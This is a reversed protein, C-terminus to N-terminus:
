DFKEIINLVEKPTRAIFDPKYEALRKRNHYGWTVAIIKLGIKRSALIDNVTDGIFLVENKRLNFKKLFNNINVEKSKSDDSTLICDFLNALMYKKNFIEVPKRYNATILATTHNKHLTSILGKLGPFIKSKNINKVYSKKYDEDDELDEAKFGIEVLKKFINGYFMDRYFRGSGPVKIGFKKCDALFLRLDLDFSDAVVGNWDFIIAKLM